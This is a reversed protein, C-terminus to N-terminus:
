HQTVPLAVVRASTPQIEEQLVEVSLSAIFYLQLKPRSVLSM